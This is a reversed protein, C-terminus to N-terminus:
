RQRWVREVLRQYIRCCRRALVDWDLVQAMKLACRRQQLRREPHEYMQAMARALAEPDAPPVVVGAGYLRVMDSAGNTSTIIIPLGAAAAEACALEFGGSLAPAVFADAALLRRVIEAPPHLSIGEATYEVPIEGILEVPADPLETHLREMGHGMVWLRWGQPIREALRRAAQLLIDIGKIPSNRAVTIFVIEGPELGYDRRLRKRDYGRFRETWTGNPLFSFMPTHPAAERALERAMEVSHYTLAAASRLARAIQRAYRRELRLGYRLPEYTLIDAGHASLVLPVGVWRAFAAADAGAPYLMQAHLVQFHERRWLKWLTWWAAAWRPLGRVRQLPVIRYPVPLRPTRQPAVVTLEVGAKWLALALSHTALEVGGIRPLFHYTLMVVRM